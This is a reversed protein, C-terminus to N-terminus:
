AAREGHDSAAGDPFNLRAFEGFFQKAATDYALAAEVETNFTGLYIHTIDARFRGSRARKVGKPLGNPVGVRNRANENRSCLRINERRNDLGNGNMHDVVLHAPANLIFRHMLLRGVARGGFCPRHVAYLHRRDRHLHWKRLLVRELDRDDVLVVHGSPLVFEKM